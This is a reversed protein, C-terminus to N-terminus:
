FPSESVTGKIATESTTGAAGMDGLMQSYVPLQLVTAYNIILVEDIKNDQIADYINNTFYRPDAVLIDSYHPLLFPIFANGYSDKIVLIKKEMSSDVKIHSFATDGGMFASYKRDHEFYSPFIIQSSDWTTGDRNISSYEVPLLPKYYWIDDLNNELRENKTMNYISGLYKNKSDVKNYSGLPAAEECKTKMFAEYARYAGLATWHHDTKFYLYEEKNAEINSYADITIIKDDMKSYAYDIGEKQSGSLDRYDDPMNFESSTPAILSYIKIDDNLNEAYNNISEVYINANYKSFIFKEYGVSNIIVFSGENEPPHEIPLDNGIVDVSNSSIDNELEKSKEHNVTGESEEFKDSEKEKITVDTEDNDAIENVERDILDIEDDSTEKKEDINSIKNASENEIASILDKDTSNRIGYLIIATFSLFIVIVVCLFKINKAILM